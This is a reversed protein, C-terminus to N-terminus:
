RTRLWHIADSKTTRLSLDTFDAEAAQHHEYWRRDSTQTPDNSLENSRFTGIEPGYFPEGNYYPIKKM